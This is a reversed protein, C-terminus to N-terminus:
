ASLAMNEYQSLFALINSSLNKWCYSTYYTREAGIRKHRKRHSPTEGVPQNMTLDDYARVITIYM